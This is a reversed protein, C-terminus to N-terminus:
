DGKALQRGYMKRILEEGRQLEWLRKSLPMLRCLRAPLDKMRNRIYQRRAPYLADIVPQDLTAVPNWRKRKLRNM